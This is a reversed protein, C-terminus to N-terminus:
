EVLKSKNILIRFKLELKLQDSDLVPAQPHNLLVPNLKQHHSLRKPKEYTFVRLLMDGINEVNVFRAVVVDSYCCITCNSVLLDFYSGVIDLIRM